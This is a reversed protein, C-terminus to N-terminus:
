PNEYYNRPDSTRLKYILQETPSIIEPHHVDEELNDKDSKKSTDDYEGGNNKGENLTDQLGQTKIGM